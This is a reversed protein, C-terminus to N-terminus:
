FGIRLDHKVMFLNIEAGANQSMTVLSLNYINANALLPVM